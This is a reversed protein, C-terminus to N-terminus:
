FFRRKNWVAIAEWWNRKSGGRGKCDQCEVYYAYGYYVMNQDDMIKIKKSGCFPCKKLSQIKTDNENKQNLM